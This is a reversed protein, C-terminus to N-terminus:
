GSLELAIDLAPPSHTLAGVSICDVGTEAIQRVTDLAVGGSAEILARKAVVEVARRMDALSMNDLLLADARAELAEQVQDLTEVEVQIKLSHPVARRAASVAAGVGGAIRLHNDKILIGDYLGFRHNSGGGLAVAWKDLARLGPATKRTDLIRVDLGAVADVYRRTLTAIGSMRQLFNLATREATLISGAPGAIRAVTEGAALAEGDHKAANFETSADVERFAAAAVEVGAITGGVRAVVVASCRASGPVVAQTTVDGHGVDEVLARRVIERMLGASPTIM